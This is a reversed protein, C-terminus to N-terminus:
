ALDQSHVVRLFFESSHVAVLTIAFGRHLAGETYYRTEILCNDRKMGIQM